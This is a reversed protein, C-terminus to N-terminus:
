ERDAISDASACSNRHGLPPLAIRAPDVDPALAIPAAIDAERMAAM